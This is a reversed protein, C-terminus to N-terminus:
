ATLIGGKEENKALGGPMIKKIGDVLGVGKEGKFNGLVV